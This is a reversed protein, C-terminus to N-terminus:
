SVLQKGASHPTVFNLWVQREPPTGILLPSDIDPLPDAALQEVANELSMDDPWQEWTELVTTYGPSHASRLVVSGDDSSLEHIQPSTTEPIAAM